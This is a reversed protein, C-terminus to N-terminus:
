QRSSCFDRSSPDKVRCSLIETEEFHSLAERLFGCLQRTEGRQARQDAYERLRVLAELARECSPHGPLESRGLARLEKLCGRMRGEIEQYDEWQQLSTEKTAAAVAVALRTRANELASVLERYLVQWGKNPTDHVLVGKGMNPRFYLDSM